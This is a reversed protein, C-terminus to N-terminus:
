GLRTQVLEVFRQAPPSLTAGSRMILLLGRITRMGSLRAVRLDLAKIQPAISARPLVGIGLGAAIMRCVEDFGRVQVRVKLAKGVADAAAAVHRMLSTARNLGVIDYDLMEDISVVPKGALPHDPPMVLVLEDSDCPLSALGDVPINDAVIGLEANGRAVARVVEESVADELDLMVSPHASSYRALLAPLFGTFASTNAWLRLHGGAGRHFDAMAVSLNELGAVIEIAYRMLTQGAPTPAVGRKCRELLSSGIHAELESIRKSAAPLSMSSREAGVTLSGGEVTAVFLRLSILDLRNPNIPAPM